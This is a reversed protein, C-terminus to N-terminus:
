NKTPDAVGTHEELNELRRKIKSFFESFKVKLALLDAKTAMTVRIERTSEALAELATDTHAQGQKIDAIDQKMRSQDEKIDVINQEMSAIDKQMAAQSKEIPALKREVLLEIKKLLEENNM